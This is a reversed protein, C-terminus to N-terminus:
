NMLESTKMEKKEKETGEKVCDADYMMSHIFELRVFFVVIPVCLIEVSHSASHQVRSILFLLLSCLPVCFVVLIM